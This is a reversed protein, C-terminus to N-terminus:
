QDEPGDLWRLADEPDDFARAEGRRLEADAEAEGRQWDHSWYYAQDRLIFFPISYREGDSPVSTSNAAIEPEFNAQGSIANPVLTVYKAM